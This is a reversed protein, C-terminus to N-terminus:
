YVCLPRQKEKTRKEQNQKEKQERLFPVFATGFMMSVDDDPM